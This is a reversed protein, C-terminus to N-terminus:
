LNFQWQISNGNIQRSVFGMHGYIPGLFSLHRPTLTGNSISLTQGMVWEGVSGATPSTMSVGVKAINNNQAALNYAFNFVAHFVNWPITYSPNENTHHLEVGESTASWAFNKQNEPDRHWTKANIM